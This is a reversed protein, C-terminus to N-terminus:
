LVACLLRSSFCCSRCVCGCGRLCLVSRSLVAGRVSRFSLALLVLPYFTIFGSTLPIPSLLIFVSHTLSPSPLRSVLNSPNHSTHPPKARAPHNAFSTTPVSYAILSPICKLSKKKPIHKLSRNPFADTQPPNQPNTHLHM